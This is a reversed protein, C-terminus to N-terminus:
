YIDSVVLFFEESVHNEACELYKIKSLKPASVDVTSYQVTSYVIKSKPAYPYMSYVTKGYLKEVMLM